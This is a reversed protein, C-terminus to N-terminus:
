THLMMYMVVWFTWQQNLSCMKFGLSRHQLHYEWLHSPIFGPEPLPVGTTKDLIWPSYKDGKGTTESTRFCMDPCACTSFSDGGQWAARPRRPSKNDYYYSMIRFSTRLHTGRGVICANRDSSSDDGSSFVSCVVGFPLSYTGSIDRKENLFWFFRPGSFLFMQIVNV